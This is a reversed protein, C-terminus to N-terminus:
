GPGLDRVLVQTHLRGGAPSRLGQVVAPAGHRVFGMSEFFALADSNEAFTQLHCGPVRRERLSDLWCTVLRRGAGRGRAGPLLDIHLHAPWRADSFELERFDFRGRAADLATDRITRWIVGATGPRFAIGRRVIHRVAAAGASSARETEVCGLLYGCVVGDIEVVLASEPEHDTYYGSFMDAFSEADFWQWDIPRGMYGTRYCVDRVAARDEARYPRIDVRDSVPRARV